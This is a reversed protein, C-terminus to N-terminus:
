KCEACKQVTSKPEFKNSKSSNRKASNIEEEKAERRDGKVRQLAKIKTNLKKKTYM